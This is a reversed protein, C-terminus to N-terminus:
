KDSESYKVKYYEENGKMWQLAEIPRMQTNRQFSFAWVRCIFHLQVKFQSNRAAVVTGVLIQLKHVVLKLICDLHQRNICDKLLCFSGACVGHDCCCFM